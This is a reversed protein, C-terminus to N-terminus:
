RQKKNNTQKKKGGAVGVANPLKQDLCRHWGQLLVPDKVWQVVAPVGVKAEIETNAEDESESQLGADSIQFTNDM